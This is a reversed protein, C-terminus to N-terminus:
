IGIKDGGFCLFLWVVTFSFSFNKTENSCHVDIYPHARYSFTLLYIYIYINQM